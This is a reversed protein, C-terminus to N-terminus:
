LLSEIPLVSLARVGMRQWFTTGPEADHRKVQEGVRELWYVTGGRALHLEYARTIVHADFAASVRQALAASAIVFGLETNLKSSRPDFNFSGIFVQKSDVAFTKAHLSSASSTRVLHATKATTGVPIRRSEFLAIGAELLAKRRKAYGAHVAPVDTAELANTLIRIKVGCRAM